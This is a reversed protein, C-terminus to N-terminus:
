HLGGPDPKQFSGLPSPQLVRIDTYAGPKGEPLRETAKAKATLPTISARAGQNLLTIRIAPAPALALGTM